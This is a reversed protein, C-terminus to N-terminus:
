KTSTERASLLTRRSLKGAESDMLAKVYKVYKQYPGDLVIDQSNNYYISRYTNYQTTKRARDYGPIHGSSSEESGNRRM